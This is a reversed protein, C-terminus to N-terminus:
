LVDEYRKLTRKVTSESVGCEIGIAAPTMGQRVLAAFVRARAVATEHLAAHYPSLRCAQRGTLKYTRM